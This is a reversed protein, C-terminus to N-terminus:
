PSMRQVLLRNLTINLLPARLGTGRSKEKTLISKCRSALAGVV